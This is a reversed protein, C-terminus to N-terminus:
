PFISPLEKVIPLLFCGVVNAWLEPFLPLQWFAWGRCCCLRVFGQRLLVGAAASIGLLLLPSLRAAAAAAAAGIVVM